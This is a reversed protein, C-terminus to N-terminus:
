PPGQCIWHKAPCLSDERYATEHMIPFPMNQYHKAIEVLGRIYLYAFLNQEANRLSEQNNISECNNVCLEWLAEGGVDKLFCLALQPVSGAM